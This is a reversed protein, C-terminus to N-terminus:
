LISKYYKEDLYSQLLMRAVESHSKEKKFKKSTGKEAIKSTFDENIFELDLKYDAKQTKNKLKNYFKEIEKKMQTQASPIGILVKNIQKELIINYIKTVAQNLNSVKLGDIAKAIIEREDSIALGINKQGYDISLVKM